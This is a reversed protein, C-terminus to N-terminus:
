EIVLNLTRRTDTSIANVCLRTKVYLRQEQSTLAEGKEAAKYMAKFHKVRNLYTEYTIDLHDCVDLPDFKYFDSLGIFVIRASETSGEYFEDTQMPRLPDKSWVFQARMVKELDILKTM